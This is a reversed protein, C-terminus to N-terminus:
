EIAASSMTDTSGYYNEVSYGDTIFIDDSLTENNDYDKDVFYLLKYSDSYASKSSIFNYGSVVGKKGGCSIFVPITESFAEVKKRYYPADYGEIFCYPTAYGHKGIEEVLLKFAVCDNNDIERLLEEPSMVSVKKSTM